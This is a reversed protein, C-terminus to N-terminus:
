ERQAEYTFYLFGVLNNKLGCEVLMTYTLLVTLIKLM